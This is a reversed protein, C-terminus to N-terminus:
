AQAGAFFLYSSYRAKTSYMLSVQQERDRVQLPLLRHMDNTGSFGVTKHLGSSGPREAIHWATARLRHPFQQVDTLLCCRELWFFLVERNFAYTRCLLIWQEANTLDIKLISDISRDQLVSSGSGASFWRSYYVGQAVEGLSFLVAFAERLQLALLIVYSHLTHRLELRM